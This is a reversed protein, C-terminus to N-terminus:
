KKSIIYGDNVISWSSKKEFINKELHNIRLLKGIDFKDPKSYDVPL